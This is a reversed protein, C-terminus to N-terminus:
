PPIINARRAAQIEDPPYTPAPNDPDVLKIVHKVETQNISLNKSLIEAKIPMLIKLLENRYKLRLEETSTKTIDREQQRLLEDILHQTTLSNRHAYITNLCPAKGYVELLHKHTEEASAGKAWDQLIIATVEKSYM